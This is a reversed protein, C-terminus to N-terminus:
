IVWRSLVKLPRGGLVGWDTAGVTIGVSELPKEGWKGRVMEWRVSSKVRQMSCVEEGQGWQKALEQKDRHLHGKRSVRGGVTQWLKGPVARIDM